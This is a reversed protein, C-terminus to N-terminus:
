GNGGGAVIIVDQKAVEAMVVANDVASQAIEFKGSALGERQAKSSTNFQIEVFLGRKALLGRDQAVYLGIHQPGPFVNVRLQEEARGPAAVALVLLALAIGHFRPNSTMAM